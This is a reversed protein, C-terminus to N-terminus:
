RFFPTFVWGDHRAIGYYYIVSNNKSRSATGIFPGSYDADAASSSGTLGAGGTILAIPAMFRQQSELQRDNTKPPINETYIMIARTFDIIEMSGPGILRWEGSDSLPDRAASPRLIQLKKTRGTPAGELLDEMSRPLGPPGSRGLRNEQYSYYVRIAEAVQEGRFIAERERERQAQQRIGPAAALAFIAIVTMVALLAVLAYGQEGAGRSASPTAIRQDGEVSAMSWIKHHPGNVSHSM